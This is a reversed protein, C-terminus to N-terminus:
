FRTLVSVTNLKEKTLKGLSAQLLWGVGDSEWLSNFTRYVSDSFRHGRVIPSDPHDLAEMEKLRYCLEWRPSETNGLSGPSTEAVPSIETVKPTTLNSLRHLFGLGLFVIIM